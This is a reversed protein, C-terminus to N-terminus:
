VARFNKKANAPVVEYFRNYCLTMTFQPIFFITNKYLKRREMANGGSTLIKIFASNPNLIMMVTLKMVSLLEQMKKNDFVWSLAKAPENSSNKNFIL